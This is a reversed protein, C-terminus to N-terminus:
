LIIQSLIDNHEFLVKVKASNLENLSFETANVVLRQRSYSAKTSGVLM